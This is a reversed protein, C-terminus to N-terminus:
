KAHLGCEKDDIENEWWWRGERENEYSKIPRTCPACGISKFGKKHLPNIPIGERIVYALMFERPWNILPHFKRINNAKDFEEQQLEARNESQERRMGTIWGSKGVLARKLCNVKRIECCQLRQVKSEYFGNIGNISVYNEVEETIPSYVKIKIQYIKETKELLSLTEPFLRGTDLTFFEVPLENKCILHTIVQDEIGLSTSFVTAKTKSVARELIVLSEDVISDNM